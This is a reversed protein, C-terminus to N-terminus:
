SDIAYNLGKSSPKASNELRFVVKIQESTSKISLPM